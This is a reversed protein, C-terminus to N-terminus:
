SSRAKLIDFELNYIAAIKWKQETREFLCCSEIYAWSAVSAFNPHTVNFLKTESTKPCFFAVQFNVM